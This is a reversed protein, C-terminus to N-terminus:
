RLASLLAATRDILTQRSFEAVIRARLVAPAPRDALLALMGEALRNPDRAPVVVGVSGVIQASDGVDTVVYPVGCAMGEGIVNSFGEGYSSSVGLDLASYIAVMDRRDGTFIVRGALGLTGALRELEARLEAAGGGVCLLRLSPRTKALRAAARLFTAHDKVPDLRGILGIVEAEADIGLERRVERGAAEDRRFRDTDIGNPVVVMREAPFGHRLRHEAGAESNAIILDPWRSALREAHFAATRLWDYRDLDTHSGRVGWVVRVSPLLPKMALCLLNAVDMYGHLIEPDLQRLARGLRVIFGVLDWRGKKELSCVRVGAARLGEELAGGPYLCLVTVDFRDRPLGAALQVLQREAGGPDLSRILFCIRVPRPSAPDTSRPASPM